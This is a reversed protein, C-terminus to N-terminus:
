KAGEKNNMKKARVIFIAYIQLTCDFVSNPHPDLTTIECVQRGKTLVLQLRGM